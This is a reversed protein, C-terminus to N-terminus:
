SGLCFSHSRHYVSFQVNELCSVNVPVFEISRGHYTASTNGCTTALGGAICDAGGTCTANNGGAARIAYSGTRPLTNVIGPPTLGGANWIPVFNWNDAPTGEGGQFAVVTQAESHSIGFLLFTLLIIQNLRLM